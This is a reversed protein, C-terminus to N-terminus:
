LAWNKTFQYFNFCNISIMHKEIKSSVILTQPHLTKSGKEGMKGLVPVFRSLEARKM